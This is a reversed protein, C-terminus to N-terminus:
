LSDPAIKTLTFNENVVLSIAEMLARVRQIRVFTGTPGKLIMLFHKISSSSSFSSRKAAAVKLFLLEVILTLPISQNSQLVDCVCAVHIRSKLCKAVRWWQRSVEQFTSVNHNVAHRSRLNSKGFTVKAKDFFNPQVFSAAVDDGVLNNTSYARDMWHESAVLLMVSLLEQAAKHVLKM